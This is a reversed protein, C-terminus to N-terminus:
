SDATNVQSKGEAYTTPAVGFEQKFVRSFYSQDLIGIYTLVDSIKFMGSGLLQAARKLRMSKIFSSPGEGTLAKIKRYLSARSMGMESAFHDVDFSEDQM